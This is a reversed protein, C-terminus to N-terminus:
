KCVAIISANYFDLPLSPLQQDKKDKFFQAQVERQEQSFQYGRPPLPVDDLCQRIERDNRTGAIASSRASTRTNLPFLNSSITTTTTTTTPERQVYNANGQQTTHSSMPVFIWYHPYCNLFIQM